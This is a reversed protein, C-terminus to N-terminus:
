GLVQLAGATAKNGVDSYTVSLSIQGKSVHQLIFIRAMLRHVLHFLGAGNAAVHPRRWRPWVAPELLVSM